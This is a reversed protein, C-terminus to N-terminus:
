RPLVPEFATGAVPQHVNRSADSTGHVMPRVIEHVPQDSDAQCADRPACEAAKIADRAALQCMFTWMRDREPGPRRDLWGLDVGGPDSLQEALAAMEAPLKYCKGSVADSWVTDGDGRLPVIRGRNIGLRGGAAFTRSLLQEVEETDRPALSAPVRWQHFHDGGSWEHAQEQLAAGFFSYAIQAATEAFSEGEEGRLPRGPDIVPATRCTRRGEVTRAIIVLIPSGFRAAMSLLGTKVRATTGLIRVTTRRQDGRPGDLGTNGDIASTICGGAALAKALALSGGNEEVNVIRFNQWLAAEPNAARATDYDKFADSALPVRVPIGSLALDSGIYRMPGLHFSAVTLGRGRALIDKCLDAPVDEIQMEGAAQTLGPLYKHHYEWGGIIKSITAARATAAVKEPSWTDGFLSLLNMHYARLGFKTLEADSLAHVADSVQQKDARGDALWQDLLELSARGGGGANQAAFNM